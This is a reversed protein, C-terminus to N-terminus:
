GGQKPHGQQRYYLESCVGMDLESCVHIKSFGDVPQALSDGVLLRGAREANRDRRDALIAQLRLRVSEPGSRVVPRFRKSAQRSVPRTLQNLKRIFQFALPLRRGRRTGAM